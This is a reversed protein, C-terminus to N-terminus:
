LSCFSRSPTPSARPNSPVSERLVKLAADPDARFPSVKLVPMGRDTIIIPQGTPTKAAIPAGVKVDALQALTTGSGKRSPAVTPQASGSSSSCAAVGGACAAAAACGSILQRRSPAAPGPSRM